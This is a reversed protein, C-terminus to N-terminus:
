LAEVEEPTPVVELYSKGPMLIETRGGWFIARATGNNFFQVTCTSGRKGEYVCQDVINLYKATAPGVGISRVFAFDHGRMKITEPAKM